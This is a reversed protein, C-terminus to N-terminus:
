FLSWDDSNPVSLLDSYMFPGTSDQLHFDDFLAVPQLSDTAYNELKLSTLDFPDDMTILDDLSGPLHSTEVRKPEDNRSLGDKLEEMIEDNALVFDDSDETGTITPITTSSSPTPSWNLFHQTQIIMWLPVLVRRKWLSIRNWQRNCCLMSRLHASVVNEHREANTNKRNILIHFHVGIISQEDHDAYSAHRRFLRKGM